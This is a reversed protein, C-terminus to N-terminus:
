AWGSASKSKETVHPLVKDHKNLQKSNVKTLLTKAVPCSDFKEAVLYNNRLPSAIGWEDTYHRCSEASHCMHTYVWYLTQSNLYLYLGYPSRQDGYVHVGCLFNYYAVFSEDSSWLYHINWFTHKLFKCVQSSPFSSILLLLKDQVFCKWIFLKVERCSQKKM